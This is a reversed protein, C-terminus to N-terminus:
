NIAQILSQARTPSLPKGTAPSLSLSLQQPLPSMRSSLTPSIQNPSTIPVSAQMMEQQKPPSKRGQAPSPNGHSTDTKTTNIEIPSSTKEKEEEQKQEEKGTANTIFGLRQGERPRAIELFHRDLLFPAAVRFTVILEGATASDFFKVLKVRVNALNVQADV